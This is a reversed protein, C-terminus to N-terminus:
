NIITTKIYNSLDIQDLEASSRNKSKRGRTKKEVLRNTNHSEEDIRGYPLSNIHSGCFDSNDKVKRSCQGNNHIRALCKKKNKNTKQINHLIKLMSQQKEIKMEILFQLHCITEVDTPIKLKQIYDSDSFFDHLFQNYQNM